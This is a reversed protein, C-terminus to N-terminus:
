WSKLSLKEDEKRRGGEKGARMTGPEGRLRTRMLSHPTPPLGELALYMSLATLGPCHLPSLYQQASHLLGPQPQRSAQGECGWYRAELHILACGVQSTLVAPGAIPPQWVAKFAFCVGLQCVELGDSLNHTVPTKLCTGQARRKDATPAM